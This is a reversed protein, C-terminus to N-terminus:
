LDCLKSFYLINSTQVGGRRSWLIWAALHEAKWVQSWQGDWLGMEIGAVQKSRSVLTPPLRWGPGEERM